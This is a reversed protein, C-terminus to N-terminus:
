VNVVSWNLDKESWIYMGDEPRPIPPVWNCTDEDLLWGNFPKPSIFADRVSDYTYGSSAFNKRFAGSYSTQIWDGGFTDKCFAAGISEQEVGKEDLLVNNNIVIVQKVIGDEVRAFHAM